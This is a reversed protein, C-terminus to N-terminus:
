AAANELQFERQAFQWFAQLERIAQPAEEADASVKRPFIDFLLERLQIM